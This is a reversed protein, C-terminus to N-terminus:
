GSMLGNHGEKRQKSSFMLLAESRSSMEDERNNLLVSRIEESISTGGPERLFLTELKLSQLKEVLIKAQTSKGSGDIGEFTIFYNKTM